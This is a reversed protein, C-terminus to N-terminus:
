PTDDELFALLDAASPLDPHWWRPETTDASALQIRLAELSDTADVPPSGEALLVLTRLLSPAGQEYEALARRVAVERARARRDAWAQTSAMSLAEDQWPELATPPVPADSGIDWSLATPVGDPGLAVSLGFNKRVRSVYQDGPHLLWAHDLLGMAEDTRGAADLVEAVSAAARPGHGSTLASELRTDLAYAADPWLTLVRLMAALDRWNGPDDQLAADLLALAEDAQGIEALQLAYTRVHEPNDPHVEWAARADAVPLPESWAVSDVLRTHMPELREAMRRETEWLVELVWTGRIVVAWSVQLEVAGSTATGEAVFGDHGGLRTPAPTIMSVEDVSSLAREALQELLFEPTPPTEYRDVHVSWSRLGIPSVWGTRGLTGRGRSWSAPADYRLTRDPDAPPRAARALERDRLTAEDAMPSLTPGAWAMVSMSVCLFIGTAARWTRNWLPRRQLTPPDALIALFSGTLLGGLHSWNDTVANFLGSLLMLVAYPVLAFGFYRRARDSLLDPRTLGFVVCAGILGFVGGSAGLSPTHPSGWMSLLSGGAVSAFYLTTLNVWGLARELNYATYTLWLMNMAVHSASTHLLGMSLIRWVEADELAPATWKTFRQELWPAIGPAQAVWWIRIQVGVLLATAIPPAAHAFQDRWALNGDDRLSAYSELATAEVFADGTIAPVRVRATPPIRGARIRAEWQDWTLLYRQSGERVEVM